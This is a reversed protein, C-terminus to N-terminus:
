KPHTIIIIKDDIGFLLIYILFNLNYKTIKTFSFFHSLPSSTLNLSSPPLINFTRLAADVSLALRSGASVHGRERQMEGDEDGGGAEDKEHSGAGGYGSSRKGWSPHREGGGEGGSRRAMYM